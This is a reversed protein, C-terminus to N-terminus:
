IFMVNFSKKNWSFYDNLDIIDSSLNNLNNSSTNKSNILKLERPQSSNFPAINRYNKYSFNLKNDYKGPGLNINYNKFDKNYLFRAQGSLFPNRKSSIPNLNKKIESEIINVRSYSQYNNFDAEGENINKMKKFEFKKREKEVNFLKESIIKKELKLVFKDDFNLNYQGPGPTECMELKDQLNEFFRKQNSFSGVSNFSKKEFQKRIINYSGPGLLSSSSKNKHNINNVKNKDTHNVKNIKIKKNKKKLFDNKYTNNFYSGPGPTMKTSSNYNKVGSSFSNKYIIPNLKKKIIKINKNLKKNDEEESLNNNSLNRMKESLLLYKKKELNIYNKKQIDSFIKIKKSVIKNRYNKFIDKYKSKIDKLNYERNNDEGKMKKIRDILEESYKIKKNPTLNRASMKNWNVIPNRNKICIDDQEKSNNNEETFLLKDINSDNIQILTGNKNEFYGYHKKIPISSINNFSGFSNNNLHLSKYLIKNKVEKKINLENSIDRLNYSGPGPFFDTENHAYIFRPSNTLFSLNKNKNIPIKEFNKSLNYTGPGPMDDKKIFNAKEKGSINILPNRSNKIIDNYTYLYHNKKNDKNQTNKTEESNDNDIIINETDNINNSPILRESLFVMAM